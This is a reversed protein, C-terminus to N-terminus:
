ERVRRFYKGNKYRRDGISFSTLNLLAFIAIVNIFIGMAINVALMLTVLWTWKLGTLGFVFPYIQYVSLWFYGIIGLVPIICLFLAISWLFDLLVVALVMHVSGGYIFYALIAYLILLPVPLEWTININM